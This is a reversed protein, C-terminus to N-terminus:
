TGELITRKKYLQNLRFDKVVYEGYAWAAGVGSAVSIYPNKFLFLIAGLLGVVTLARYLHFKRWMDIGEDLFEKRRTSKIVPKGETAVPMFMGFQKFKQDGAVGTFRTKNVEVTNKANEANM